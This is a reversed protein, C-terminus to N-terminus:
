AAEGQETAIRGIDNQITAIMQVVEDERRPDILMKEGLTQAVAAEVEEESWSGIVEITQDHPLGGPFGLRKTGDPLTVILCFAPEGETQIVVSQHNSGDSLTYRIIDFLNIVRPQIETRTKTKEIGM